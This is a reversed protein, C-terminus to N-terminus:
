TETGAPKEPSPATPAADSPAPAPSASPFLAMGSVYYATLKPTNSIMEFTMQEAIPGNACTRNYVVQVFSGSTSMSSRYNAPDRVPASCGPAQRIATEIRAFNDETLAGRFAGAAAQYNAADEGAQQHQHFAAAAAEVASMDQPAVCATLTAICAFITAIRTHM